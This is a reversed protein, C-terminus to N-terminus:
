RKVDLFMEFHDEVSSASGHLFVYEIIQEIRRVSEVVDFHSQILRLGAEGLEQRLRANEVLLSIGDALGKPSVDDVRILVNQAYDELAIGQPTAVVPKGLAMAELAAHPFADDRSPQVYIDCLALFPYVQPQDGTFIVRKELGLERVLKIVAQGYVSRFHQPGGGIWMFYINKNQHREILRHAAQVWLEVGKLFLLSGSTAILLADDPIGLDVRTVLHHSRLQEDRISLDIGTRVTAIMEYPIGWCDHIYGRPGVGESIFLSTRDILQRLYKDKLTHACQSGRQFTIQICPLVFQDIAHFQPIDYHYWRVLIDPKFQQVLELAWARSRRREIRRTLSSLRRMWRTSSFRSPSYVHTEAYRRYETLLDGGTPLMVMPTFKEKDLYKVVHSLMRQGGGRTADKGLFLVKIPQKIPHSM